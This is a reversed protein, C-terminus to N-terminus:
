EFAEAIRAKLHNVRITNLAEEDANEAVQSDMRLRWQVLSKRAVLNKTSKDFSPVLFKMMAQKSSEDSSSM